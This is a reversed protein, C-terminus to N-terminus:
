PAASLQDSPDLVQSRANRESPVGIMVHSHWNVHWIQKIHAQDSNFYSSLTDTSTMQMLKAM